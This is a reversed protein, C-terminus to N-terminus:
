LGGCFFPRLHQFEYTRWYTLLQATTPTVQWKAPPLNRWLSVEIRVENILSSLYTQELPSNEIVSLNLTQQKAIPNSSTQPSPIPSIFSVPRRRPTIQQTPQNNTDLEWHTTPETYPSNLIPNTYFTNM